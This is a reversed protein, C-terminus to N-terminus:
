LSQSEDGKAVPIPTIFKLVNSHDVQKPAVDLVADMEAWVEKSFDEKTVKWEVGPLSNVWIDYMKGILDNQRIVRKVKEKKAFSCQIVWGGTWSVYDKEEKTFDMDPFQIAVVHGFSLPKPYNEDMQVRVRFGLYTCNEENVNAEVLWFRAAIVLQNTSWFVKFTSNTKPNIVFESM